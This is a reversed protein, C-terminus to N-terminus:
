NTGKRNGSAAQPRVGGGGLVPVTGNEPAPLAREM